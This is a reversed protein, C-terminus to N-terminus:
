SLMFESLRVIYEMLVDIITIIIITQMKEVIKLIKCLILNYSIIIVLKKMVVEMQHIVM